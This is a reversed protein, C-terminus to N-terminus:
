HLHLANRAGHLVCSTLLLHPRSGGDGGGLPQAEHILDAAPMETRGLEEGTFGATDTTSYRPQRLSCRAGEWWARAQRGLGCARVQNADPDLSFMDM